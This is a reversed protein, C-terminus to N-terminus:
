ASGCWWTHYRSNDIQFTGTVHSPFKVNGDPSANAYLHASYTDGATALDDGSFQVVAVGPMTPNPTGIGTFPYDRPQDNNTKFIKVVFQPNYVNPPFGGGGMIFVQGTIHVLRPAEGERVPTWSSTPADYRAVIEYRTRNYQLRTYTANPVFQPVSSFACFAILTSLM